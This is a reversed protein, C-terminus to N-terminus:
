QTECIWDWIQPSVFSFHGVNKSHLLSHSIVTDGWYLGFSYRTSILYLDSHIIFGQAFVFVFGIIWVEYVMCNGIIYFLFPLILLPLNNIFFDAMDIDILSIAVTNRVNHHSKHYKYYKANHVIRHGWYTMADFIFLLVLAQFFMNYSSIESLKSDSFIGSLNMSTILVINLIIDKKILSPSNQRTEKLFNETTEVRYKHLFHSPKSAQFRAITLPVAIIVFIAPFLLLDMDNKWNQDVNYTEHFWKLYSAFLTIWFPVFFYVIALDILVNKSSKQTIQDTLQAAFQQKTPLKINKSTIPKNSIPKRHTSDKNPAMSLQIESTPTNLLKAFSNTINCLHM